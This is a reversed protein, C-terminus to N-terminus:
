TPMGRPFVFSSFSIDYGQEGTCKPFRPCCSLSYSVHCDSYTVRYCQVPCSVGFAYSLLFICLTLAQTADSQIGYKKSIEPLSPAIMASPLPSMFTYLGVQIGNTLVYFLDIFTPSEGSRSGDM